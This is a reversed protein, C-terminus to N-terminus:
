PRRIGLCEKQVPDPWVGGPGILQDSGGVGVPSRVGHVPHGADANQNPAVHELFDAPPVFPKEHVALIRIDTLADVLSAVFDAVFRLCDDLM